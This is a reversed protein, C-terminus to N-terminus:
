NKYKDIDPILKSLIIYIALVFLGGSWSGGLFCSSKISEIQSLTYTGAEYQTHLYTMVGLYISLSILIFVVICDVIILKKMKM